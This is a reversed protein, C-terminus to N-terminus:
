PQRTFQQDIPNMIKLEPIWVFDDVNRTVLTRGFAIASGALLADGLTIKRRQRLKTAWEACDDTLALVNAARFFQELAEREEGKLLHFGLVEVRSIISVAPSNERIFTRLSGLEPRAAYIIINSDLLV